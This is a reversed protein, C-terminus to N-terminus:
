LDKTGEVGNRPRQIVACNPNPNTSDGTGLHSPGPAGPATASSAREAGPSGATVALSTTM